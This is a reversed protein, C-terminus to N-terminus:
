LLIVAGEGLMIISEVRTGHFRVILSQRDKIDFRLFNLHGAPVVMRDVGIIDCSNQLCAYSSEIKELIPLSYPISQFLAL